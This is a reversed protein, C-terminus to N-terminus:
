RPASPPPVRSRRGRAGRRGCVSLGHAPDASEQRPRRGVGREDLRHVGREHVAAGVVAGDGRVAAAHEAVAPERDDIEDGAVLGDLALLGADSGDEVALDVVEALEAPLERRLAVRDRAGAVRRQDRM